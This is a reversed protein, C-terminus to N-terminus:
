QEAKRWKIQSWRLVPVPMSKGAIALLTAQRFSCPPKWRQLRKIERSETRARRDPIATAKRDRLRTTAEDYPEPERIRWIDRSWSFM